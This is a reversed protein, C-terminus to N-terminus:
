KDLNARLRDWAKNLSDCDVLTDSQLKTFTELEKSFGEEKLLLQTNMGNVLLNKAFEQKCTLDKLKAEAKKLNADECSTVLTLAGFLAIINTKM